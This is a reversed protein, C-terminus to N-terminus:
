MAQFSMLLMEVVLHWGDVLVFLLLKLPLSLTTPPVMVMGMSMTVSSVVLDVIVFPLFIQFGLLFAVKLESLLFAPLLAQVPVDPYYEVEELELYELFLRVDDHNGARSIQNSMFEHVPKVAAAWAEAAPLKTEPDTYPKIADEHVQKWVPFMILVTLFLSLATTVQNSPVQQVGLAQRLLALVVAIRVYCTTMLLLAPALSLAAMAAVLRLNGAVREPSTLSEWSPLSVGLEGTEPLVAPSADRDEETTAADTEVAEDSLSESLSILLDLPDGGSEPRTPVRRSSKAPEIADPLTGSQSPTELARIMDPPVAQDTAAWLMSPLLWGSLVFIFFWRTM